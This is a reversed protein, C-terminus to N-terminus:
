TASRPSLSPVLGLGATAQQAALDTVTEAFVHRLRRKEDETLMRGFRARSTGLLRSDLEPPLTPSGELAARIQSITGSDFNALVDNVVDHLDSNEVVDQSNPNGDRLTWGSRGHAQFLGSNSLMASLNNVPKEGGVEIGISVLHDLIEATPTPGSRNAVYIRAAELAREREPSARRGARSAADPTAFSTGAFDGVFGAYPTKENTAGAYLRLVERLIHLRAELNAIEARVVAVFEQSVM